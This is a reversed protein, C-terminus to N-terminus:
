AVERKGYQKKREKEEFTAGTAQEKAPREAEPREAQRRGGKAPRSKKIAPREREIM